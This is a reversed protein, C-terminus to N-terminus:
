KKEILGIIVSALDFEFWKVKNSRMSGGRRHHNNHFCLGGTIWGLFVRNVSQDETEFTRYGGFNTIHCLVNEVGLMNISLVMAPAIAFFFLKPMIIAFVICMAIVIMAYNKHLFVQFKDRLFKNKTMPGFKDPTVTFLWGIYSHFKGDVPTLPDKGSVDSYKHHTSHVAVWSLPSGSLSLCGLFSLLYEVPKSAKFAQHSFYRHCGVELGIIFFLFYFVPILWFYPANDTYIGAAIGFIAVFHIPVLLGWPYLKNM